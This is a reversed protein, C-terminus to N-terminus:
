SCALSDFLYVGEGVASDCFEVLSSAVVYTYLVQDMYMKLMSNQDYEHGM